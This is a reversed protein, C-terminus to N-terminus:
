ALERDYNFSSTPEEGLHAHSLDIFSAVAEREPVSMPKEPFLYTLEGEKVVRFVRGRDDRITGYVPLVARTSLVPIRGYTLVEVRGGGRELLNDIAASGLEVWATARDVGLGVLEALAAANTVPLPFTATVTVATLDVDARRLAHLGFLAGIRFRRAGDAYAQRTSEILPQLETESCFEPLALEGADDQADDLRRTTIAETMPNRATGVVKVTTKTGGNGPDLAPLPGAMDAQLRAVCTRAWRELEETAVSRTAWDWFARRISKLSAAPVFLGPAVRVDVRGSAIAESRTRGFEVRVAEAAAPRSRAQDFPESHSWERGQLNTVQVDVGAATVRVSLDLVRRCVPLDAVRADEDETERGIKYVNGKAPVSKDCHVFCQAGRGASQAQRRGVTLRTVTLSPGEDGSAPQIRIRDGVQLPRTLSVAFGNPALTAVRGCLLGAVGPHREQILNPFDSRSRFGPSWKRGYTDALVSRAEALADKEERPSADLMMRYAKVAARVYDTQRLRGEIKLGAVGLRKLEPVADLAYLDHTSFFFGNGEESYFRRRCPQTCKGRNGSWGGLWSSFLCVGSRSCCLAGHVFVEVPTACRGTILEVEELTVQRQLIVREVGLSGLLEVGASNHTAMQTSAHIPLCPFYERILRLIGLDQVIVADPRILSLEALAEAVETLERDKVLTNLTVYVHKGKRRAYTILKGVEEPTCNRARERANFKPLGVYIADAGSDFAALGAAVHSAPALLEPTSSIPAAM